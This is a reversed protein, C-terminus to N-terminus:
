RHMGHTFVPGLVKVKTLEDVDLEGDHNIDLRTFEGEMFAIYESLTVIGGEQKGLMELLKKTGAEGTVFREGASDRVHVRELERVSLEGNGSVDLAAFEDHAFRLFEPKSVKGSKDRDMLRLLKTTEIDASLASDEAFAPAAWVVGLAAALVIAKFNGVM